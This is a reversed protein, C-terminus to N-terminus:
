TVGKRLAKIILQTTHISKLILLLLCLALVQLTKATIKVIIYLMNIYCKGNDFEVM